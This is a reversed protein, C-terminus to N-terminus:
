ICLGEEYCYRWLQFFQEDSLQEPRADQNIACNILMNELKEKPVMNKLNNYITKRKQGFCNSVFKWYSKLESLNKFPLSEKKAIKIVVSDVKPNPVFAGKPINLVKEVHAVTQVVVSLFGRNSSGPQNVLREGVEKQLMIYVSQFDTFLLKKLIPATIYYPINSVCKYGKPLFSMDMTLFDQFIVVVNPFTSLREKLVPEMRRDIEIAFVTAGTKALAVTLTGAGAGIELVNDKESINALEVIKEAYFESSLFNQGLAKKLYLGYKKM